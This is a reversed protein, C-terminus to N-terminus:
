VAEQPILTFLREPSREMARRSEAGSTFLPASLYSSVSEVAINLASLGQESCSWTLGTQGATRWGALQPAILRGSMGTGVRRHPLLVPLDSSEARLPPVLYIIASRARNAPRPSLIRSVSARYKKGLDVPIGPAQM